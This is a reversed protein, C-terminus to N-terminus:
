DRQNLISTKDIVINLHTLHKLIETIIIWSKQELKLSLLKENYYINVYNNDIFKINNPIEIKSIDKLNIINLSKNHNYIHKNTILWWDLSNLYFPFIPIEDILKIKELIIDQKSIELSKWLSTYQLDLKSRRFKAELTSIKM